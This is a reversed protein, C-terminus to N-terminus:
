VLVNHAIRREEGACLVYSTGLYLMQWVDIGHATPSFNDDAEATQLCSCIKLFCM